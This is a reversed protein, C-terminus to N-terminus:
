TKFLGDHEGDGYKNKLHTGDCFPKNRSNGCRCIDYHEKSEPKSNDDDALKVYGVIEYPGDKKINIAPIRDLNMHLKNNITYSLAGSPCKKIVEIIKGADGNDPDIWPRKKRRFVRPAGTICAGDHSCVGRNDHIVINKGSYSKVRDPMRGDLKSDDFNINIHMGDCYPKNKSAGCRCLPTNETILLKDNSDCDLETMGKVFLPGNKTIIIEPKQKDM